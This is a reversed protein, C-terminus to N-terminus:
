EQYILGDQVFLYVEKYEHAAKTLKDGIDKNWEGDWFGAGHRNRTLWFDHGALSLNDKIDEWYKEQFEDCEKQILELTAPALDSSSYKSDMPEDNEDLSSWLAAAIYSELFKSNIM